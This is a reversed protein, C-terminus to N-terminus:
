RYDRILKEFIEAAERKVPNPSRSVQQATMYLATSLIVSEVEPREELMMDIELTLRTALEKAIAAEEQQTIATM